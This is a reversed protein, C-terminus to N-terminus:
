SGLRRARLQSQARANALRLNRSFQSRDVALDKSPAYPQLKGRSDNEQAQEKCDALPAVAALLNFVEPQLCRLLSGRGMRSM